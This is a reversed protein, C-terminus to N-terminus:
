QLNLSKATTIAKSYDQNIIDEKISTSSFDPVLLCLNLIAIPDLTINSLLNLINTIEPPVSSNHFQWTPFVKESNYNICLVENYLLKSNLVVPTINLLTCTTNFDVCQNLEETLADSTTLITSLTHRLKTKM